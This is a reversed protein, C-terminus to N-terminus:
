LWWPFYCFLRPKDAWCVADPWCTLEIGGAHQSTAPHLFWPLAWGLSSNLPKCNIFFSELESSCHQQILVSHPISGCLWTEPFGMVATSSLDTREWCHYRHATDVSVFLCLLEPGNIHSWHKVAATLSTLNNNVLTDLLDVPPLNFGPSLGAQDGQHESTRREQFFNVWFVSCVLLVPNVLASFCNYITTGDQYM